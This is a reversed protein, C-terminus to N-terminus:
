LQKSIEWGGTIRTLAFAGFVHMAEHDRISKKHWKEEFACWCNWPVFYAQGSSKAGRFNLALFAEGARTNAIISLSERQHIKLRCFEFVKARTAKAEVAFFFGNPDCVVFDFEKRITFRKGVIDTQHIILLNERELFKKMESEFIKGVNAM